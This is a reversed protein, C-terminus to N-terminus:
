QANTIASFIRTAQVTEHVDHVRVIRAGAAVALVTAALAGSLRESVPIGLINGIFSKRSIGIFIPRGFKKFASLENILRLNDEVRKGFGIGPDLILQESRIGSNECFAIRETFFDAVDAIVDKYRPARQMSRPRGKMHMLVCGTKYRSILKAIGPAHRLGTIDNIIDVGEEIAARAVTYKYTDVSILVKKFERRLLRLIPLLRAREEKEPVPLSGPRSSEAGIDLMTAGQEVMERAQTLAEDQVSVGTLDKLLGDGSFSDSTLNIIGCIIPKKITLTTGRISLTVRDRLCNDLCVTLQAAIKKLNFPQDHLKQCLRRLQTLSGFIVISTKIKKILADRAIACDSGLSLLHQKIVNAEWSSIDEISFVLHISKPVLIGVGVQSASIRSFFHVANASNRIELPIIRM